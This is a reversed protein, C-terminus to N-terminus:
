PVSKVFSVQVVDLITQAGKAARQMYDRILERVDVKKLSYANRQHDPTSLHHKFTVDGIYSLDCTECYYKIDKECGCTLNALVANKNYLMGCRSCMFEELNPQIPEFLNGTLVFWINCLRM